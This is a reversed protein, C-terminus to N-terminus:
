EGYTLFVKNRLSRYLERKSMFGKTEDRETSQYDAIEYTMGEKVEFVNSNEFNQMIPVYATADMVEKNEVLIALLEGGQISEMVMQLRFGIQKYQYNTQVVGQVATSQQLPIEFGQKMIFPVNEKLILKVSKISNGKGKERIFKLFGQFVSSSFEYTGGVAKLNLQNVQAFKSFIVDLGVDTQNNTNEKETIFTLTCYRKVGFFYQNLRSAEDETVQDFPKAFGKFVQYPFEMGITPVEPEPKQFPNQPPLTSVIQPENDPQEIGGSLLETNTKNRTNLYDPSMWGITKWIGGDFVFYLFGCFFLVLVAIPYKMPIGKVKFKTDHTKNFLSTNYLEAYKMQFPYSFDQNCREGMKGRGEIHAEELYQYCRFGTGRKFIGVKERNLNRLLHFAQTKGRFQKDIDGFSQAMWILSDGIHRIFTIYTLTAQSMHKWNRSNFYLHAEDIVYLVGEDSEELFDSFNVTQDIREDLEIHYSGRHTFFHHNDTFTELEYIYFDKKVFERIAKRNIPVNTVIPRNKNKIEEVICRVSFYSKGAGPKGTLGFIGPQLFESFDM